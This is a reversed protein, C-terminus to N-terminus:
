LGEAGRCFWPPPSRKELRRLPARNDDGSGQLLGSLVLEAGRKLVREDVASPRPVPACLGAEAGAGWLRVLRGLLLKWVPGARTGAAAWCCAPWPRAIRALHSSAARKPRILSGCRHQAGAPPAERPEREAPAPTHRPLLSGEPQHALYVRRVGPSGRLGPRTEPGSWSGAAVARVATSDAVGHRRAPSPRILGFVHPGDASPFWPGTLGAVPLRVRGRPLRGASSRKASRSRNSSRHDM